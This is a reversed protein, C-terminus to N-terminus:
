AATRGTIARGSWFGESEAKAAAIADAARDQWNDAAKVVLGYDPDARVGGETSPVTILYQGDDVVVDAQAASVALVMMGAFLLRTVRSRDPLARQPPLVEGELVVATKRQRIWRAFTISALIILLVLQFLRIAIRIALGLLWVTVAAAFLLAGLAFLAAGLLILMTM